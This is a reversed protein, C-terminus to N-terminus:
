VREWPRRMRVEARKLSTRVTEADCGYREALRQLSWGEVYLQAGESLQETLLGQRRLEVGARRLHGAVTTRHLDWRKALEKMDAGAQYEAVLEAAQDHTLRRQVPRTSAGALPERIESPDLLARALSRLLAM